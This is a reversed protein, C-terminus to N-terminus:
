ELAYRPYDIRPISDWMAPFKAQLAQLNPVGPKVEIFSYFDYWGWSTELSTPTEPDLQTM